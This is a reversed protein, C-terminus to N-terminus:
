VFSRSQQKFRRTKRDLLIVEERKIVSDLVIFFVIRRYIWIYYSM